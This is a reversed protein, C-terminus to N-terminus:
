ERGRGENGGSSGQSPIGTGALDNATSDAARSNAAASAPGTSKGLVARAAVAAATAPGSKLPSPKASRAPPIGPSSTPSAAFAPATSTTYPDAPPSDPSPSCNQVWADPM